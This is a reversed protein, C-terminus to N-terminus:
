FSAVIILFIRQLSKSALGGWGACIPKDNGSCKTASLPTDDARIYIGLL